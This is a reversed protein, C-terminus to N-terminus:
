GRISGRTRISTALGVDSNRSTWASRSAPSPRAAATPRALGTLIRITTTKGAGNPGLLGFISGRPVVLDLDDLALISGFRKTLGHADIAPATLPGPALGSTM